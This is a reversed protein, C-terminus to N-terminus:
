THNWPPQVGYQAASQFALVLYSTVVDRHVLLRLPFIPEKAIYGENFLFLLGLIVSAALILWLVPHNWPLEQGGLHLFLLFGVITLALAISGLFDIRRLKSHSSSKVDFPLSQDQDHDLKLAILGIAM